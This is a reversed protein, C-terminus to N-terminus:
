ISQQHEILELYEEKKMPKGYYYGQIYRVGISKFFEVEEKTEVGEAVVPMNLKRALDAISSIITTQKDYNKSSSLFRNDLKIISIDLDKLINLSSYGTGFDDMLIKINQENIMKYCFEQISKTNMSYTSETIEIEILEHPIKKLDIYNIMRNYVDNDYDFNSKSINISIPLVKKGEDLWRRIDGILKKFLYSDVEKILGTKEFVNIFKEPTIITGDAKVWRCLAEGGCYRETKLDYKPQIYSVFEGKAIAEEFDAFMQQEEMKKSLSEEKYVVYKKSSNSCLKNAFSVKSYISEVDEQNNNIYYLGYNIKLKKISSNKLLYDEAYAIHNQFDEETVSKIFILFEDNEVRSVLVTKEDSKRFSKALMILLKNGEEYGYFTNIVEFNSIDMKIIVFEDNPNDDLIRRIHLQFAQKRYLGTLSDFELEREYERRKFYSGIGVCLGLTIQPLLKHSLDYDAISIFGMFTDNAVIPACALSKVGQVNLMEYWIPSKDKMKNIDPIMLVTNEEFSTKSLTFHNEPVKQYNVGAIVENKNLLKKDVAWEYKNVFYGNELFFIKSRRANYANTVGKCIKTMIEEESRDSLLLQLGKKLEIEYNLQQRISHYQHVARIARLLFNDKKFPKIFYDMAGNQFAEIQVDKDDESSCLIIPTFNLKELPNVLHLFDLGSMQPMIYDVIVLDYKEDIVDKICERPNNSMKIDFDDQFISKLIERDVESDDIILLKNM